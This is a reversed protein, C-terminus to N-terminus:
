FNSTQNKPNGYFPGVVSKWNNSYLSVQKKDYISSVHSPFSDIGLHLLSNKVIYFVQNIDTLGQTHVCNPFPRDSKEGIQVISIGADSLPKYIMELVFDFYDYTKSGKGIPHFTIYKEVNLPYFKDYLFPKRIKSGTM